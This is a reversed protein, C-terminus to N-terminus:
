DEWNKEAFPSAEEAVEAGVNQKTEDVAACEFAPQDLESVREALFSAHASPKELDGGEVGAGSASWWTRILWGPTVARCGPIGYGYEMATRARAGRHSM